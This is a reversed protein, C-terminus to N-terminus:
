LVLIAAIQIIGIFINMNQQELFDLKEIKQKPLSILCWSLFNNNLSYEIQESESAM